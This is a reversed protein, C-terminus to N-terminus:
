GSVQVHAAPQNSVFQVVGMHECVHAFPPLQTPGFLHSQGECHVPISQRMGTQAWVQLFPPSHTAGSVQM